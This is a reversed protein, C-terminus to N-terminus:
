LREELVTRMVDRPARQGTWLEFQVLAQGLFMELGPVITCGIAEADQLLRTKKPNYVADFVALRPSLASAEVPSQDVNPHM